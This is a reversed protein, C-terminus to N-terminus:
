RRDRAANRRGRPAPAQARSRPRRGRARTARGGSRPLRPRPPRRPTAPPRGAWPGCRRPQPRPISCRCPSAQRREDARGASAPRRPSTPGPAAGVTVAARFGGDDERSRRARQVLASELKGRRGQVTREGVRSGVPLREAPHGPDPEAGRENREVIAPARETAAANSVWFAALTRTASPPRPWPRAGRGPRRTRHRRPPLVDGVLRAPRTSTGEGRRIGLLARAECFTPNVRTVIALVAAAEAHRGDRRSVDARVLAGPAFDSVSRSADLEIEAGPGILRARQRLADWWPAVACAGARERHARACKPASTSLMAAIEHYPPLPSTPDLEAAVRARIPDRARSRRRSARRGGRPLGGHVVSRTRDGARPARASGRLTEASLGLAMQASALDPDTTSAEEAARRMRDHVDQYAARATFTVSAYLAEALSAQADILSEISNSRRSSCSRPGCRTGTEGRM